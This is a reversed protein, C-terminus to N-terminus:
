NKLYDFPFVKVGDPRTYAKPGGTIVMLLDPERLQIQLETRKKALERIEQLHQTTNTNKHWVFLM